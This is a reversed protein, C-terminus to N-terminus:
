SIGIELDSWQYIFLFIVIKLGPKKVNVKTFAFLSDCLWVRLDCNFLINSLKLYFDKSLAKAEFVCVHACVDSNPDRHPKTNPLCCPIPDTSWRKHAVQANNPQKTFYSWTDTDTYTYYWLPFCRSQVLCCTQTVSPIKLDVSLQQTFNNIYAKSWYRTRIRNPLFFFCLMMAKKTSKLKTEKVITQNM